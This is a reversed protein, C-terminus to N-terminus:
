IHILSLHWPAAAVKIAAAADIRGRLLDSGWRNEFVGARAFNSELYTVSLWLLFAGLGRVLAPRKALVFVWLLGAAYATMSTRSETLWM